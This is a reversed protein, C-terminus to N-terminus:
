TKVPANDLSPSASPWLTSAEGEKMLLCRTPVVAGPSVCCLPAPTRGRRRGRKVMLLLVIARAKKRPGERPGAPTAQMAPRAMLLLDSCCCCINPGLAAGPYPPRARADSIDLHSFFIM